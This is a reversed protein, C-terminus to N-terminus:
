QTPSCWPPRSAERYGKRPQTKLIGTSQPKLYYRWNDEPIKRKRLQTRMKEKKENKTHERAPVSNTRMHQMQNINPMMFTNQSNNMPFSQQYVGSKFQQMNHQMHSNQQPILCPAKFGPLTSANSGPFRSLWLFNSTFNPLLALFKRDGWDTTVKKSNNQARIVATGCSIRRKKKM